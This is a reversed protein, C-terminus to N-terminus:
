AIWKSVPAKAEQLPQIVVDVLVPIQSDIAKQLVPNLQDPDEVRTGELGYAQAVQAHNIDSFDVGFYNDGRAKQGAKIWGYCSNTLVIFTVPLKLRVITELEGVSMAFGGDGIVGVIKSQPRAHYAGVVAPLAYGLAGHARPAVFWRGAQPLRLYAALYPTATGPDALVIADEPLVHSLETVFREPRIPVADSDFEGIERIQSDRKAAIIEPDVKVSPKGGLRNGVEDAIAALGLKADAVIGQIVQYNLGIHNADVDLQIVNKSGSPPLTWKETTVSGTHCGIFFVLDANKIFEHRYALGGNSGIVGLAFPHTEPLGGKGSISTAVPCGLLEALIRLETWAESRLVGAGAVIVPRTSELLLSAVKQIDDSEPAVRAAPYCGYRSDLYIDSDPVTSEQINFPLGIHVAGLRGTTARRFAERITWGLQDGHAPTKTWLTLSRFIADQDLETLTGRERHRTDIDTTFVVLPVSSQNAEAVGPIIYTVGGGSPGECVGIRGSFRAYADAMYAASREDRTLIHKLGSKSNFLSKYFPLSTDGCLGFV